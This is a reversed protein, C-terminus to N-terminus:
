TGNIRFVAFYDLSMIVALLSKSIQEERKLALALNITIRTEKLPSFAM